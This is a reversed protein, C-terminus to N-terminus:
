KTMNIVAGLADADITVGYYGPDIIAGMKVPMDGANMSFTTELFSTFSGEMILFGLRGANKYFELARETSTFVPLYATNDKAPLAFLRSNGDKHDGFPTSYFIMVKGFAKLFSKDDLLGNEHKDLLSVGDTIQQPQSVEKQKKPLKSFLGMDGEGNRPVNITSYIEKLKGFEQPALSFGVKTEDSKIINMGMIHKFIEGYEISVVENIPLKIPPLNKKDLSMFTFGSKTLFLWGACILKNDYYNSIHKYLPEEELSDLMRMAKKSFVYDWISLALYYVTGTFLGLLIALRTDVFFSCVVYSVCAFFFAILFKARSFTSVLIQVREDTKAYLRIFIFKV